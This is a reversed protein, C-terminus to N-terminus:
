EIQSVMKKLIDKMVHGTIITSPISFNFGTIHNQKNYGTEIFAETKIGERLFNKLMSALIGQELNVYMDNVKLNKGFRKVTQVEVIQEYKDTATAPLYCMKNYLARNIYDRLRLLDIDKDLQELVMSRTVQVREEEILDRKLDQLLRERFGGFILEYLGNQLETEKNEIYEIINTETVQFTFYGNNLFPKVEIYFIYNDNFYARKEDELAHTVFVEMVFEYDEQYPDKFLADAVYPGIKKETKGEHGTCNYFEFIDALTVALSEMRMHANMLKFFSLNKPFFTLPFHLLVEKGSVLFYKALLHLLTEENASCNSGERHAFHHTNIPGKRATLTEKCSPCYYNRDKFIRESIHVIYDNCLAYSINVAMKFIRWEKYTAMKYHSLDM